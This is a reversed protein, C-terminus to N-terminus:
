YKDNFAAFNLAKLIVLRPGVFLAFLWAAMMLVVV